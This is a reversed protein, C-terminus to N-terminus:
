LVGEFKKKLDSSIIREIESSPIRFTRKKDTGFSFAMIRGAKISRRVSNPHVRLKAAFEKITFFDKIDTDQMFVVKGCIARNLLDDNNRSDM